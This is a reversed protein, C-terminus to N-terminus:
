AGSTAAFNFDTAVQAMANEYSQVNGSTTTLNEVFNALTVTRFELLLDGFTQAPGRIGPADEWLGTRATHKTELSGLAEDLAGQCTAISERLEGMFGPEMIAKIDSAM